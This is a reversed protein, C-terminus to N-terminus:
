KLMELLQDYAASRDAEDHVKEFDIFTRLLREMERYAELESEAGNWYECLRFVRQWTKKWLFAQKSHDNPAQSIASDAMGRVANVNQSTLKEQGLHKNENHKM